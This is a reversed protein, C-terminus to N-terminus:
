VSKKNSTSKNDKPSEKKKLTFSVTGSNSISVNSNSGTMKVNAQEEFDGENKFKSLDFNCTFNSSSLNNIDSKNGQITIKVTKTENSIELNSNLGTYNVPVELNKSIENDGVKEVNIKVTIYNNGDSVNVGNPLIIKVKKETDSTINSLNISETKLSNVSAIAKEDGVIQVSTKSPNTSVLKYGNSVSGTFETTVDVSKGNNVNISITGVNKSLTVGEVVNGYSDLAKLPLEKTINESVSELTGVLAVNAVKDVASQPGSVQVKESNFQEKQKYVGKAYSVNVQSITNFQKTILKELKVKIVLNGNNKINLEDPYNKVQVPINNVGQKLAYEGLNASLSFQSKTAAYIYKSYGELDLDVSFTQNPALALGDEKLAATNTVKVPVGKLTYSRTTNQINTVYLWLGFSLLVCVLKIILTQKKTNGKDM